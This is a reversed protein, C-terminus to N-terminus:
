THQVQLVISTVVLAVMEMYYEHVEGIQSALYLSKKEIEIKFKEQISAKILCYVNLDGEWTWTSRINISQLRGADSIEAPIRKLRPSGYWANGSM